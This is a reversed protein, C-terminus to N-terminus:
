TRNIRWRQRPQSRAEGAFEVGLLRCGPPGIMGVIVLLKQRGALDVFKINLDPRQADDERLAEFECEVDSALIEFPWAPRHHTM